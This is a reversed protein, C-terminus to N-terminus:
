SFFCDTITLQGNNRLMERKNSVEEAVNKKAKLLRDSSRQLKHQHDIISRRKVVQQANSQNDKIIQDIDIIRSLEDIYLMVPILPLKYIEVTKEQKYTEHYQQYTKTGGYKTLSEKPPAIPVRDNPTLQYAKQYIMCLLSYKKWFDTPEERDKLYRGACPFSCFNGYCYFQQEIVRDPIGIPSGDFYSDCNWCAYPSKIPWRNGDNKFLPLVMNTHNRFHHASESESTREYNDSFLWIPVNQPLVPITIQDYLIPIKPLISRKLVQDNNIVQTGNSYQLDVHQPDERMQKTIKLHVIYNTTIKTSETSNVEDRVPAKIKLSFSNSKM